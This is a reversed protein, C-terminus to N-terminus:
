VTGEFSGDDEILERLRRLGQVMRMKVTGLAIGTEAAIQTQSKGEYFRARLLDSEESPLQKLLHAIHWQDHMEGTFENVTTSDTPELNDTDVPDPIRKRLHDIARSRTIQMIWTLLGARSPDYTPGRKWVELFVQQQVDEAAGRDRLTSMLYGFTTRGFEAYLREVATEDGRHLAALLEPDINRTREEIAMSCYTRAM